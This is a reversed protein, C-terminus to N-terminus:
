GMAAKIWGGVLSVGVSTVVACTFSNSACWKQTAAYGRAIANWVNTGPNQLFMITKGGHQPSTLDFVEYIGKCKRPDKGDWNQSRNCIARTRAGRTIADVAKAHMQVFTPRRDGVAASASETVALGSALLIGIAVLAGIVNRRFMM